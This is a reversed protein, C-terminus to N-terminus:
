YDVQKNHPANSCANVHSSLKTLKGCENCGGYEIWCSMCVHVDKKPIVITTDDNGLKCKECYIQLM